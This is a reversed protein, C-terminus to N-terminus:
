DVNIYTTWVTPGPEMQPSIGAVLKGNLSCQRYGGFEPDGSPCEWGFLGSYFDAAKADDPTTLDQWSPEGHAYSTIEM